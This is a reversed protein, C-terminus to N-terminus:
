FSAEFWQYLQIKVTKYAKEFTYKIKMVYLIISGFLTRECAVIVFRNWLIIYAKPVIIIALQGDYM